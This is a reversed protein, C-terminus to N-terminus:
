SNISQVTSATLPATSCYTNANVRTGTLTGLSNGATNSLQVVLGSTLDAMNVRAIQGATTNTWTAINPSTYDSRPNNSATNNLCLEGNAGIVARMRSNNAFPAFPNAGSVLLDYTGVLTSPIAAARDAGGVLTRLEALIGDVPGVEVDTLGFEGGRALVAGNVVTLVLGSQAYSRRVAPGTTQTSGTGAALQAPYQREALMFLENITQLQVASLATSSCFTEASVREGALNGLSSGAANRLSINLGNTTDSSDVIAFLNATTYTWNAINPSSYDSRPNGSILSNLCLEGNPRVVVRVRSNTVFPALPNAGSVVMDYTGILSTPIVAAKTDGGVLAR